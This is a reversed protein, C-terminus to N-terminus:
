RATAGLQNVSAYSSALRTAGHARNGDAPIIEPWVLSCREEYVRRRTGGDEVRVPEGRMVSELELREATRTRNAGLGVPSSCMPPARVASKLQSSACPCARRSPRSAANRRRM